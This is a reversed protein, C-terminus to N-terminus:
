NSFIKFIIPFQVIPVALSFLSLTLRKISCFKKNNKYHSKHPNFIIQTHFTDRHSAQTPTAQHTTVRLGTAERQDRGHGAEIERLTPAEERGGGDEGRRGCNSLSHFVEATFSPAKLSWVWRLVEKDSAALTVVILIINSVKSVNRRTIQWSQRPSM